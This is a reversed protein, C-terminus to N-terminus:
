SLGVFCISVYGPFHQGAFDCILSGMNKKPLYFSLFLLM